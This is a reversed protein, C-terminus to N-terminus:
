KRGAYISAIGFTLPTVKNDRYGISSMIELFAKGHPFAEVSEPLYEYAAKQKSLLQGIVPLIKRSYFGYLQKVPFKVPQSFELIIVQGGPKVVRLMERLGKELNDFNRVGFAVTVADFSDNEFPLATSDAYQLTILRDLNLKRIKERGIALMGDSIDIGVIKEPNLRVAEIALDGTGTAIDLIKKPSQAVLMNIVKKRWRRDTGGSLVHNLLDYRSAISDFMAAVKERKDSGAYSHPIVTM